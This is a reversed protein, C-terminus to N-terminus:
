RKKAARKKAAAARQKAAARKKAAAKRAKAKKAAAAQKKTLKKKKAKKAPKKKAAKKAPAVKKVATSVPTKSTYSSLAEAPADVWASPAIVGRLAAGIDLAGAAVPLGTHRVGALLASELGPGDLDPRAAALLVLAGTVEPAAM